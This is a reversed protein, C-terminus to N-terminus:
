RTPKSYMEPAVIKWCACLDQIQFSKPFHELLEILHGLHTTVWEDVMVDRLLIM